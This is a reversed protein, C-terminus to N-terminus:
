ISNQPRRRGLLHLLRENAMKLDDEPVPVRNNWGFRRYAWDVAYQSQILYRTRDSTNPAGRHWCQPDQLYIDGAKCFVSVPGHGEFEPHEQSNPARGSCHSGPVYQTPGHEITEIDSLAMQVTFWLVPPRIRPDHRPVNDPVPFYVTGDVHWREIAVGSGNRLVNQGCFRCGSGVIAEALGLIPQRLLMDRFIPDLEITNRLIFPLEEGSESHPKLQVYRKNQLDLNERGALVPDDLLEDTRDRLAKIEDPELVGPIHVFGDHYFAEVIQLTKEESFSQGSLIPSTTM